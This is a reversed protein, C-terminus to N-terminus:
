CAVHVTYILILMDIINHIGSFAYFQGYKHDLPLTPQYIGALSCQGSHAFNCWTNLGKHLLPLVQGHCQEFNSGEPQAAITYTVGDAATFTTTAGQPMCADGQLVADPQQQDTGLADYSSSSAYAKPAAAAGGAATAAAREEISGYVEAKAAAANDAADNSGFEALRRTVMDHPHAPVYAVSGSMHDDYDCDYDSDDCSSGAAAAAIRVQQPEYSSSSSYVPTSHPDSAISLMDYPAASSGSNSSGDHVALSSELLLRARTAPPLGHSIDVVDQQMRLRTSASGFYLFSHSYVNWHKQGGVQLKFLNSMIDQDQRFFSIQTSAGGMDLAGVTVNSNATGSGHSDFLLNGKIFNIAAWGYIGEEEGSIVRAFDFEFYFPCAADYFYERVYKMIAQRQQVPLQRMGGTAKLYIPFKWWNEKQDALVEKAFDILPQLHERVDQPHTAYTSLGPSFRGTWANKSEPYSIPPPLTEFLRPEWQYVHMRSGGSGADIIMGHAIPLMEMSIDAGVLQLALSQVLLAMKFRTCSSRCAPKFCGRLTSLLLLM